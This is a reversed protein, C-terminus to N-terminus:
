AALEELSTQLMVSSAVELLESGDLSSAVDLLESGDLRSAVKPPESADHCSDLELFKQLM